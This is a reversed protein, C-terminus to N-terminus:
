PTERLDAAAAASLAARVHVVLGEEVHPKLVVHHVGVAAARKPITEDPYGTILVVPAHVDRGRLSRILDIGNMEEMKYDIIVCDSWHDVGAALFAAGSAFTRVEFGETELLFRLSGLVDPDDDIVDVTIPAPVTSM